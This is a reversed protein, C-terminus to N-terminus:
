QRCKITWKGQAKVRLHYSGAKFTGTRATGRRRSEESLIQRTVGDPDVLEVTFKGKGEYSWVFAVSGPRLMFAGTRGGGTGTFEGGIKAPKPKPKPKSRPKPKPRKTGSDGSGSNQASPPPLSGPDPLSKGDTMGRVTPWLLWVGVCAGALLVAVGLIIVVWRLGALAGGGPAVPRRAPADPFVIQPGADAEAEEAAVEESIAAEAEAAAAAEAAQRKAEKEAARLALAEQRRKEKEAKKRAKAEAKEKRAQREVIPACAPCVMKGAVKRIAESSIKRNCQKCTLLKPM